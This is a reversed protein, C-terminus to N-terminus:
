LDVPPRDGSERDAYIERLLRDTDVDHWGGFASRFAEYDAETIVRKPRRPKAPEIVVLDEGERRLTVPEKTNAVDEVFRLLDPASEVDISRSKSAMELLEMRKVILM